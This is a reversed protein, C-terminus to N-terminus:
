NQALHAQITPVIKVFLGVLLLMCVCIVASYPNEKTAAAKSPRQTLKQGFQAVARPVSKLLLTTM